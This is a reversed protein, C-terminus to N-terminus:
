LEIFKIDSKDLRSMSRGVGAGIFTPDCIVFRVGDVMVFDGAVDTDFNVAAALHGPYYVLAVRLGVIDKVLRSFLISRDECDAYPYFLTEEPFFARDEGWVVNDYEYEFATQVFNLLIEVAELKSKGELFNKLDVYIGEKFEDSLPAVAYSRWRTMLNGGISFTPYENYFDILNKNVSSIVKAFEYRESQLIRQEAIDKDFILEDSFTLRLPLEQPYASNSISMHHYDKDDLCYCRSGDINWCPYGYIDAETAILLYIRNNDKARALRIKFGTQNLLFAHLLVNEDRDGYIDMSLKKTMQYYAWDCFNHNQRNVICDKLTNNAVQSLEAWFDAVGNEDNSSLVPMISRNCRFFLDTGFFTFTLKEEQVDYELEIPEEIPMPPNSTAIPKVITAIPILNQEIPKSKEEESIVVPPKPTIEEDKPKPQSLEGELEIWDQRLYEVFRANQEDRFSKFKKEHDEKLNKFKANAGELFDDFSRQASVSVACIFLVSIFFLRYNM